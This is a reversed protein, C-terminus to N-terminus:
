RVRIHVATKTWPHSIFAAMEVGLDGIWSRCHNILAVVRGTSRLTPSRDVCSASSTSWLTCVYTRPPLNTRAATIDLFLVSFPPDLAHAAAGFLEVEARRGVFLARRREALREGLTASWRDSRM